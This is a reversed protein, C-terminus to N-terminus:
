AGSQRSRDLEHISPGCDTIQSSDDRPLTGSCTMSPPLLFLWHLNSGHQPPQDDRGDQGHQRGQQRLHGGGPGLARGAAVQDHGPRRGVVGAQPGLGNLFAGAHQAVQGLGVGQHDVGRGAGAAAQGGVPAGEADGAVSQPPEGDLTARPVQRVGPEPAGGLELGLRGRGGLRGPDVGVRGEVVLAQEPVVPADAQGPAPLGGGAAALHGHAHGVGAEVEGVALQAVLDLPHDVESAELVRGDALGEEAGGVGVQGGLGTPGLLGVPVAVAGPDAAADGGLEVAGADVPDRGLDVQDGELDGL